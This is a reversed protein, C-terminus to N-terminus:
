GLRAPRDLAPSAAPAGAGVLPLAVPRAPSRIRAALEATRVGLLPDPLGDLHGAARAALRGAARGGAVRKLESACLQVLAQLLRGEPTRRGACRWLAEFDEHAEHWAGAAFRAFGRALVADQPEALPRERASV